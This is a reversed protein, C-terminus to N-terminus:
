LRRAWQGAVVAALDALRRDPRDLAQAPDAVTDVVAYAASVGAAAIQQRGVDVRGALVLCPRARDAASRAVGAVVKGRLSSADFAGEGTLVLDSEAVRAPIGTLDLVTEIGPVRTAGLLGLGFGLGGAAGAGPAEPDGGSVEAWRALAADLRVIRERDAGKQPGFVASAGQIGLLPNDVDSAVVLACGALRAAAPSLDVSEVYALDRASAPHPYLTAGLAALMGAGGDNTASGGLGIVLRRAGADAAGALLEGVGRTTMREPDRRDELVLHLGCAQAAELYATDGDLLFAAPVPDGLPGTVTLPVLDGPRAAHIVDVFGPGGDSLPALDLDDEAAVRRWGEAIADAAQPATLTGAFKDPAILVRM